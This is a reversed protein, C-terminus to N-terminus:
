IVKFIFRRFIRLMGGCTVFTSLYRKFIQLVFKNTCSTMTKNPVCTSNVCIQSNEDVYDDEAYLKSEISIYCLPPFM